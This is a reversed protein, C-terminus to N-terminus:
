YITVNKIGRQILGNRMAKIHEKNAKLIVVTNLQFPRPRLYYGSTDSKETYDYYNGNQNPQNTEVIYELNNIMRVNGNELKKGKTINRVRVTVTNGSYVPQSIIMNDKSSLGGNDGRRAYMSPQFESYYIKVQKSEEIKVVEAVEKKITDAIALMLKKTLEDFSSIM